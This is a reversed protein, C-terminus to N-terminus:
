LTQGAEARGLAAYGQNVWSGALSQNHAAIWLVAIRNMDQMDGGKQAEDIMMQGYYQDVAAINGCIGDLEQQMNTKLAPFNGRIELLLEHGSKEPGFSNVRDFLASDIEGWAWGNVLAMVANKGDYRAGANKSPVERKLKCTEATKVPKPKTTKPFDKVVPTPATTPAKSNPAKTPEPSASPSPSVSEIVPQHPAAVPIQVEPNNTFEKGIMFSFPVLIMTLITLWITLKMRPSTQEDKTEKNMGEVPSVTDVLKDDPM